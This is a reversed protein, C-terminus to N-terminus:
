SARPAGAAANAKSVRVGVPKSKGKLELERRELDGLDPHAAAYASDSILIEGAAAASALRATVNVSDGLVTFDHLGEPGGKVVGVFAMGTHVGIGVPLWPGKPDLHGLRRRLELAADIARRAHHPGAFGPVFLGIVEDGMLRDILADSHVLVHTAEEYFRQILRTYQAPRMAEAIVTSNRVDAFLMSIEIEAGGPELFACPECYRPNKSSQQRGMVRMVLGGWGKFPANCIMCRPNAPLLGFLRRFRQGTPDGETLTRRWENDPSKAKKPPM